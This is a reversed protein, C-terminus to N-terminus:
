FCFWCSIRYWILLPYSACLRYIFCWKPAKRATILGMVYNHQKYTMYITYLVYTFRVVELGTVHYIMHTTHTDTGCFKLATTHWVNAYDPKYVTIRIGAPWSFNRWTLPAHDNNVLAVGLLHDNVTDINSRQERYNGYSSTTWHQRRTLTLSNTEVDYMIDQPLFGRDHLIWWTQSARCTM